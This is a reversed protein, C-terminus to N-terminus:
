YPIHPSLCVYPLSFLLFHSSTHTKFKNLRKSITPCKPKLNPHNKKEKETILLASISM